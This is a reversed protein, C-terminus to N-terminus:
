FVKSVLNAFVGRFASLDKVTVVLVLLLLLSFGVSHIIQEWKQNVPSGKIKGILLFLLRGGDLAPLPLINFIALNLSLMATFQILYALGLRAVRGTMMAIGVPGAVAEGAGAGVFLGKILFYFALLIEKLYWFTDVVGYYIARYWPYKVTGIEAIGIGLGAKGTEAYIAPKINKVFIEESRKITVAIEEERHDNVYNQLEKLRPNELNGIKLVVDGSVLGAVAAPKGALVQIIETRRNSVASIDEMDNTAQPLGMMYGISLLVAALLINMTVGAALVIARKWVKQSAFSDVSVVEADNEGKIQVFGGLPLWNVSYVTAPAQERDFKGGVFKFKKTQPDRYWGFARPPFGFGFEYVRMGAKKAAIFHGFEHSLVLVALVVIFIIFTFVAQQNITLSLIYYL